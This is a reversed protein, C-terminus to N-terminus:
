AAVAVPRARRSRIAFTVFFAAIALGIIVVAGAWFMWVTTLVATVSLAAGAGTPHRTLAWLGWGSLGLAVLAGIGIGWRAFLDWSNDAASITGLMGVALFGSWVFLVAGLLYATVTWGDRVGGVNM